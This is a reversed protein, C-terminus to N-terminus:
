RPARAKMVLEEGRGPRLITRVDSLVAAAVDSARSFGAAVPDRAGLEFARSARHYLKTALLTAAPSAAEVLGARLLAARLASPTFHVLHRPPDLAYWNAGYRALGAAAGSPVAIWLTGGAVLAEAGAGLLALPDHVHELVHNLTIADFREGPFAEEISPGERVRLGASVAHSRAEPDPEIGAVSWGATRMRVLFAGNGCGIDLLRRGDRAAPLDRVHMSSMARGGPLMRVVIPGAASAPQMRYGFRRNIDGKLLRERLAGGRTAPWADATPDTHTYYSGQYARHITQRTPRPNLFLSRCASCRDYCWTRPGSPRTPDRAGTLFVAFDSSECAPCQVLRELDSDAWTGAEARTEQEDVRPAYRGDV